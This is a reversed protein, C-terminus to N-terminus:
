RKIGNSVQGFPESSTCTHDESRSSPPGPHRLSTVRFLRNQPRQVLCFAARPYALQAALVADAFGRVVHPLLLVCAQSQALQALEPLQALLVGLELPQHRIQRQVSVHQLLDDSSLQLAEGGARTPASSALRRQPSRAYPTSATASGVPLAANDSDGPGASPVLSAAAPA